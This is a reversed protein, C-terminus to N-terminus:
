WGLGGRERTKTGQGGQGTIGTPDPSAKRLALHNKRVKARGKRGNCSHKESCSYNGRLPSEPDRHELSELVLGLVAKSKM